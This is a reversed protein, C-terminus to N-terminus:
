RQPPKVAIRGWHVSWIADILRHMPLDGNIFFCLYYAYFVAASSKRSLLGATRKCKLFSRADAGIRKGAIAQWRGLALLADVLVRRIRTGTTGRHRGYAAGTKLFGPFNAGISVVAM